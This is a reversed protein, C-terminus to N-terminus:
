RRSGLWDLMGRVNGSTVTEWTPKFDFYRPYTDSEVDIRREPVADYVRQGESLVRYRFVPPQADLVVLDVRRGLAAELEVAITGLLRHHSLPTARSDAFLIAVDVDSDPRADGRAVSGFLWASAVEPHAEVVSAIAEAVADQTRPQPTGPALSVLKGPSGVGLM